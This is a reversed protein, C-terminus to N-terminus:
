SSNKRIAAKIAYSKVAYFVSPLNWEAWKLLQNRGVSLDKPAYVLANGLDEAAIDKVINQFQLFKHSEPIAHCTISSRSFQKDHSDLSGHITLANWFLVSGKRLVPARVSSNSQRFNELVSEIYNDYADVINNDLNQSPWNLLHTKPCVFFRGARPAIDELAIWAATMTGVHESDLYYSDQHERTASNGEFYMSQVIKPREGLLATFLKALSRNNFISSKATSRFNPYQKPDVSQLNLIPNMVWGNENHRNVELKATAQRYIAAKSLKVETNWLERMEDCIEPEIVSDVVVYGNDAYYRKIAVLDDPKFHISPDEDVVEPVPASLGSPTQLAIM